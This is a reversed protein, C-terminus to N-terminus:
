VNIILKEHFANLSNLESKYGLPNCVIRTPGINLNVQEHTHGHLWLKPKKDLIVYDFESLFFANLPSLAYQPAICQISPLHHTVVIDTELLEGNLLVDLAKHQDYVWEEFGIIVNFDSMYQKFRDNHNYYPFWGSGGIFRQGDITIFSNNLFHVNPLKAIINRITEQVSNVHSGYYEHNGAVYIVNPYKAAFMTLAMEAKPERYASFIDGALVLVDVGAPDLSEIFGKGKDRHMELHLDSMLQIKM